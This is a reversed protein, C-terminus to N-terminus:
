KPNNIIIIKKKKSFFQPFSASTLVYDAFEATKSRLLRASMCHEYLSFLPVHTKTRNLDFMINGNKKENNSM